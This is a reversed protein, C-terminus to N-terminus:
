SFGSSGVSCLPYSSLSPHHFIACLLASTTLSFASLLTYLFVAENRENTQTEMGDQHSCGETEEQEEERGSKGATAEAERQLGPYEMLSSNSEHRASAGIRGFGEGAKM